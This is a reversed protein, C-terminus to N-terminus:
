QDLFAVSRQWDGDAQMNLRVRVGSFTGREPAIQQVLLTAARHVRENAVTTGEDPFEPCEIQYFLARHGQELGEKITCDINTFHPPTYQILAASLEELASTPASTLVGISLAEMPDVKTPEMGALLEQDQYPLPGFKEQEAQLEFWGNNTALSIPPRNIREYLPWVEGDRLAAKLQKYHDLMWATLRRQFATDDEGPEEFLTFHEGRLLYNGIGEGDRRLSNLFKATAQGLDDAEFTRAYIDISLSARSAAAVRSGDTLIRKWYEVWALGLPEGPDTTLVFDPLKNSRREEIWRM